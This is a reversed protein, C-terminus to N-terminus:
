CFFALTNNLLKALNLGTKCPGAIGGLIHGHTAVPSFFNMSRVVCVHSLVGLLTSLLLKDFTLLVGTELILYHDGLLQDFTITLRRILCYVYSYIFDNSSLNFTGLM